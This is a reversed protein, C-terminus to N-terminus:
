NGAVGTSVGLQKATQITLLNMLSQAGNMGNAGAGGDAGMHISPVLPMKADKFAGAWIGNIRELAVLKRDLAGDAAMLKQRATAEGEARLIKALKESEAALRDQEAALRRGDAEAVIKANITEQEWKAKAADAAGQAESTIKAQQARLAEAIATQVQMTIAQQGKIQAEVTDDYDISEIAFNFTRVGFQNLQGTNVRLPQGNQGRLIEVVTARKKKTPDLDDPVEVEKTDTQYTGGQVTDEVYQVLQARREKYSEYSTMLTGTLYISSNLAPRILSTELSAQSPYKKHIETLKTEDAPLEYNISGAIKATGGENFQIKLREDAAEDPAKFTITGRQNYATVSGFWQLVPGPQTVWRYGGNPYQIRVYEQASVVEIFSGISFLGIVAVIAALGGLFLGRPILREREYSPSM